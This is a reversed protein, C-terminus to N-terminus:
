VRLRASRVLRQLGGVTIALQHGERAVLKGRQPGVLVQGVKARSAGVFDALQKQTVKIRLLLGRSDAVGFDYALELLAVAM